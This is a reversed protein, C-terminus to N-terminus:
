AHDLVPYIFIYFVIYLLVALGTVAMLGSVVACLKAGTAFLTRPWTQRPYKSSSRWIAFSVFPITISSAAFLALLLGGITPDQIGCGAVTCVGSVDWLLVLPIGVLWFACWLAIQGTMLKKLFTMPELLDDRGAVDNAM